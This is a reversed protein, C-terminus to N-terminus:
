IARPPNTQPAAVASPLDCWPAEDVVAGPPGPLDAATRPSAEDQVGAAARPPSRSEAPRGQACGRPGAQRRLRGATHTHTHPRQEESALKSLSAAAGGGRKTTQQQEEESAAAICVFLLRYICFLHQAIIEQKNRSM